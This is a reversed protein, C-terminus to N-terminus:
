LLIELCFPFSLLLFRSVDPLFFLPFVLFMSATSKGERSYKSIHEVTSAFCFVTLHPEWHIYFLYKLNNYVRSPLPFYPKEISLNIFHRCWHVTVLVYMHITYCRCCGSWLTHLLVCEFVIYTLWVPIRFSTWTAWLLALSLLCFSFCPIFLACIFHCVFFDCLFKWTEDFTYYSSPKRPLMGEETNDCFGTSDGRM